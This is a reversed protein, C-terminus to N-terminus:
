IIRTCRVLLLKQLKQTIAGQRARNYSITLDSIINQANDTATKMATMGAHEATKADIIAGYILSEAYQPLLQDLIAEPSPELLYEQEYSTAESPDLDTIPLM